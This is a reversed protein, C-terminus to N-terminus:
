NKKGNKERKMQKNKWKSRMIKSTEIIKEGNGIREPKNEKKRTKKERKKEM